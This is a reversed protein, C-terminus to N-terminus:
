VCDKCTSDLSFKPVWEMARSEQVWLIVLEHSPSELHNLPLSNAQWASSAPEIGPNPLEGPSPFPLGSWHEQSLFRMSLLAQHAVTWPTAFSKFMAVLCCCSCSMVLSTAQRWKREGVLSQRLVALELRSVSSKM